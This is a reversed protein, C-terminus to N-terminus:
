WDMIKVLFDNQSMLAMNNLDVRNQIADRLNIAQSMEFLFMNLDKKRITINSNKESYVAKLKIRCLPDEALLYSVSFV